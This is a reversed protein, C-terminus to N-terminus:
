HEDISVEWAVPETLGGAEILRIIEGCDDGIGVSPNEAQNGILTGRYIKWLLDIAQQRRTDLKRTADLARPQAPIVFGKRVSEVIGGPLDKIKM